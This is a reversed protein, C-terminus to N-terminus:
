FFSQCLGSQPDMEITWFLTFINASVGFLPQPHTSRLLLAIAGHCLCTSPELWPMELELNKLPLHRPVGARVKDTLIFFPMTVNAAPGPENTGNTAVEGANKDQINNQDSGYM